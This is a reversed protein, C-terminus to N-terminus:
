NQHSLTMLVVGSSILFLGAWQQPSLREGFILFSSTAVLLYFFGGSIAFAAGLKMRSVVVIWILFGMGQVAVAGIISPSTAVSTLWGTFNGSPDRVQLRGVGFKVLLQSAVTCITVILIMLIERM